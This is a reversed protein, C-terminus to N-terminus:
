GPLFYKGLAYKGLVYKGIVRITRAACRAKVARILRTSCQIIAVIESVRKAALVPPDHGGLIRDRRGAEYM